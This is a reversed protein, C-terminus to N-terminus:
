VGLGFILNVAIEPYVHKIHKLVDMGTLGDDDDLVEDVLAVDFHGANSQLIELAEQGAVASIVELKYHKRLFEAYHIHIAQEDDVILVRIPSPIDM